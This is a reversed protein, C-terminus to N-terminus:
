TYVNQWLVRRPLVSGFSYLGATECRYDGYDEAHVAQGEQTRCNRCYMPLTQQNLLCDVSLRFFM